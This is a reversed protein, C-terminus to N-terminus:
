VLGCERLRAAALATTAAATAAADMVRHHDVYRQEAEDRERVAGEHMRTAVLVIEMARRNRAWAERLTALTGHDAGHIAERSRLLRQRAAECQYFRAAETCAQAARCITPAELFPSLSGLLLTQLTAM